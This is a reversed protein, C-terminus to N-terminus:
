DRRGADPVRDMSRCTLVGEELLYELRSALMASDLADDIGLPAFSGRLVASRAAQESGADAYVLKWGRERAVWELFSAATRGDFEPVPTIALLWSWEPGFPSIARRTPLGTSSLTLETGEEVRQVQDATRVVARGERLRVRLSTGDLNVEYQTGEETIEGLPTRVSLSAGSITPFGSDVYIRGRALVVTGPDLLHIRTTADVRLLHGSPLRLALLSARDTDLSTGWAVADGPTLSAPGGTTAASTEGARSSGVSAEVRAPAPPLSRPSQLGSGTRLLALAALLAAAAVAATALLRRRRARRAMEVRWRAHVANRARLSRETAIPARKGALRLLRGVDDQGSDHEHRQGNM